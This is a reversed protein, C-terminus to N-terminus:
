LRGAAFEGMVQPANSDFGIVDLMGPDNPDAISFNNSVMGVVILKANPNVKERYQRLAQPPHINGAWTESDTYVVFVDVKAKRQLASLMPQSCDTGGMDRSLEAALRVVDDLRMRPSIDIKKPKTTFAWFESSPEAKATVLAMVASAHRPTFGPIGAVIGMGMSGSIDLWLEHEKGSTEVNDFAAYFANDLTDIVRRLPTWTLSGKDGKGNKYILMSLMVQVPHVRAAKLADRDSLKSIVTTTAESGQALLGVSSLKGLNRLLATLGMEPLLTEWVAPSNLWQTPVAERPLSFDRVLNVVESETTANKIREFGTITRVASAEDNVIGMFDGWPLYGKVKTGRKEADTALGYSMWRYVAERTRDGGTNPHALRIMDGHGWGDRSQYKVAQDALAKVSRNEYWAAVGKRAMPGWGRFQELYAAFHFLHTGIRAVKPLARLAAERTAKDGKGAAMALAFLAPDNKPARGRDSVEVITNVTRAGDLAICQEICTANEVTLKRETAYYSGGESGLILFRTLRQFPDLGFAYGGASNPVQASGPIPESQPTIRTSGVGSLYGGSRATTRTRTAM